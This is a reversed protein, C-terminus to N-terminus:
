QQLCYNEHSYLRYGWSGSLVLRSTCVVPTVGVVRDTTPIWICIKIHSATTKLDTLCHLPLMVLHIILKSRTTVPLTIVFNITWNGHYHHFSYQLYQQRRLIRVKTKSISLARYDKTNVKSTTATDHNIYAPIYILVSTLLQKYEIATKTSKKNLWNPKLSFVDVAMYWPKM